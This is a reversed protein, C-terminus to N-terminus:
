RELSTEGSSEVRTLFLSTVKSRGYGRRGSFALIAKSAVTTEGSRWSARAFGNLGADKTNSLARSALNRLYSLLRLPNKAEAYIDSRCLKQM